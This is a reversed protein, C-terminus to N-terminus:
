CRYWGMLLFVADYGSIDDPLTQDFVAVSHGQDTLTRAVWYSCDVSDLRGPDWFRDLPDYNLVCFSAAQAGAALLLAVLILRAAPM